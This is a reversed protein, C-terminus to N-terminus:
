PAPAEVTILTNEALVPVDPDRPPLNPGVPATEFYNSLQAIPADVEISCQAYAIADGNAASQENLVAAATVNTITIDDTITRQQKFMEVLANMFLRPLRGIEYSTAGVAGVVATVDLLIRATTVDRNPDDRLSGERFGRSVIYVSPTDKVDDVPWEEVRKWAGPGPRTTHGFEVSQRLEQVGLYDSIWQAVHGKVAMEVGPLSYIVTM